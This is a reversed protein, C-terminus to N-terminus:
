ASRAERRAARLWDFCHRVLLSFLLWCTTGYLTLFLGHDGSGMLKMGTAWDLPLVFPLDLMYVIMWRNVLEWGQRPAFALWLCLLIHLVPLLSVWFWARTLKM